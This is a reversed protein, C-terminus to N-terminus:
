GFCKQGIAYVKSLPKKTGEGKVKKLYSRGLSKTHAFATRCFTIPDFNAAGVSSFAFIKSTGNPITTPKKTQVRATANNVQNQFLLTKFAAM